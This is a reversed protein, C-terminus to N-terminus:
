RRQLRQQVRASTLEALADRGIWRASPQRSVALARAADLAARHLRRNRKGIQRLAWNVAKKVYPRDDGAARKLLPLLRVFRDDVAQRDHIALGALTAFAARRVFEARRRAWREVMAWALPTRDFLPLCTNDCVAWNDFQKAWAEMQRVTLQAPDAILGALLRAELWETNWLAQALAHDRGLRRALPRLASMPVGFTQPSRIGYHAM